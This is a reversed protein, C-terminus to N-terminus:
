TQPEHRTSTRIADISFVCHQNLIEQIRTGRAAITTISYANRGLTSMSTQATPLNALEAKPLIYDHLLM